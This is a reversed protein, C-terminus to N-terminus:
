AFDVFTYGDTVPNQDGRQGFSHSLLQLFVQLPRTDLRAIDVGLHLSQVAHFDETFESQAYKVDQYPDIPKLQDVQEISKLAPGGVFPPSNEDMFDVQCGVAQALATVGNELDIMDHGFKEWTTIHAAAMKDGDVCYERVTYGAVAAAHMFNELCVPVRDPIGGQLVTM